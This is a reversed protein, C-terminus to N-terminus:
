NNDTGLDREVIEMGKNTIYVEEDGNYCLGLAMGVMNAGVVMGKAVNVIYLKELLPLIDGYEEVVESLPRGFITSMGVPPEKRRNWRELFKPDNGGFAKAVMQICARVKVDVFDEAIDLLDIPTIKKM